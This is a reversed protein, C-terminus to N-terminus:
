KLQSSLDKITEKGGIPLKKVTKAGLDFRNLDVMKISQDEYSKFYFRLNQPDRASTMLTYDYLAAEGHSERLAGKPIDFQNLVHFLQFIAETSNEPKLSALSYAAARVFRAPPTFDGPIGVMGSGHGFPAFTIGDITVPSINEPTLHIYNRLNALHWDFSPANTIVGLKNDHVILQGKIPEIVLSNGAKDYVIYHFPPTSNDWSKLPTAVIAINALAEKVEDLTAFQTVLWNPFETPSLSNPRNQETAPAYDAFGPFYFTGVSLGKENIGDLISLEDFAIAGVVAYKAQFEIGPGSPHTGTFSYGRPIIAVSTPVPRGFELTRGHVTTGDQAVLKLGTCAFCNAGYFFLAWILNFFLKM